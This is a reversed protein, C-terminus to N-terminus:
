SLIRFNCIVTITNFVGNFALCGTMANIAGAPLHCTTSQQMHSTGGCNYSTDTTNFVLNYEVAPLTYPSNQTHQLIQFTLNHNILQLRLYHSASALSWDTQRQCPWSIALGQEGSVRVLQNSDPLHWHHGSLSRSRQCNNSTQLQCYKASSPATQDEIITHCEIFSDSYKLISSKNCMCMYRYSPLLYSVPENM